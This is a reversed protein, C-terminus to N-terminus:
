WVTCSFITLITVKIYIKGCNVVKKILFLSSYSDPMMLQLLQTEWSQVLAGVHFVHDRM